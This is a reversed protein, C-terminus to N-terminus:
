QPQPCDRWVLVQGPYLSFTQEDLRVPDGTLDNVLHSAKIAIKVDLADTMGTNVVAYWTGDKPTPIQRILVQPNSSADAVLTGPLAPLALFARNFARVYEPFGRQFSNAALYGIFRPDGNALARAEALVCYPGAEEFDAIFYGLPRNDDEGFCNENLPYHRLMALGDPTRFSELTKIDAVSFQRNFAMSLLVGPTDTYRLPDLRPIAHQWEWGGWTGCEGTLGAWGLRKALVDEPSITKEGPFRGPDDTVIADSDLVRGPESPDGTFILVAQTGIVEPRRLYDRIAIFFERRQGHWWDLYDQYLKPDNKLADRTPVQQRSSQEAFRKRCRDSFSVPMGSNRPRLWVGLFNAKKAEDAITIELMKRLDEVTDPDTVDANGKESWHIHTYDDRGGPGKRSQNLTQCRRQSGLADKGGISGCYEYMPLINVGMRGALDVIQSWLQPHETQNVWNNGGFKESDWGQNHGFELLDKSFTDMGLFKMLRIKAAFWDTMRERDFGAGAPNDRDYIVGDSMEERWFLHRQPLGEPPRKVPLELSRPDPAAYLRLRGVAMGASAPDNAYRFHALAVTFGDAPTLPRDDSRILAPYRQHLEFVCTWNQWKGSLPYNLSEPNGFVYLMKLADGLSAGTHFARMTENGTNWVMMSRAVDEPYEIQLVYPVGAKLGKGEGLRVSVYRDPSNPRNPLTLSPKGLISLREVVDVNPYVSFKHGPDVSGLDVEDILALTATDFPLQPRQVEACVAQNAVM